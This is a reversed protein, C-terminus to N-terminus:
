KKKKKSGLFGDIFRGVQGATEEGIYGKLEEQVLDEVQPVFVPKQTTGQVRFPITVPGKKKLGAMQAVGGTASESLTARMQFDLRNDAGIEGAGDLRGVAPLVLQIRGFRLGAPTMRLDGGMLQIATDQGTRIGVLGAVASMGAGLDYGTLRTDRMDVTGATVLSEVPGKVSLDAELTGGKLTAGKPLEVGLAPLFAVLDDVPMGSGRITMDVRTTGDKPMFTGALAAKAAGIEVIADELKGTRGARDTVLTYAVAVPRGAPPAGKMVRLRVLRARGQSRLTRGDSAVKGSYDVLGGLGADPAVFGSATVDLREVRVEAQAPTLTTDEPDLPGFRGDVSLRGKGPLIASLMFPSVSRPAFDRVELRVDEYRFTQGGSDAHTVTARGGEVVLLNVSLDVTAAPEGAPEAAPRGAEAAGLSSFNWRGGEGRILRIEPSELRVETVRLARSGVLAGLDVRVSLSQARIFPERGFAADEAIVIEDVRAGGATLALHLRGLRVERGLAQSLRRELEPKFQNVDIFLVLAMGAAVVVALAVGLWKLWGFRKRAGEAM